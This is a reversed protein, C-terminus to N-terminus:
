VLLHYHEKSSVRVETGTLRITDGKDGKAARIPCIGAVCELRSCNTYPSTHSLACRSM